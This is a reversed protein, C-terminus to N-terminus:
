HHPHTLHLLLLLLLLLLSLLLFLLLLADLAHFCLGIIGSVVQNACVLAVADFDVGLAQEGRNRDLSPVERRSHDMAGILARPIKDEFAAAQSAHSPIVDM